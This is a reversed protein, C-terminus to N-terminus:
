NKDTRRLMDYLYLTPTNVIVSAITFTVLFDLIKGNTPDDFVLKSMGSNTVATRVSRSVFFSSYAVSALLPTYYLGENFM